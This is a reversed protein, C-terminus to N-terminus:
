KKNLWRIVDPILWFYLVGFVCIWEIRKEFIVTLGVTAISMFMGVTCLIEFPTVKKQTM